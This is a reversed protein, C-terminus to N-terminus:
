FLGHSFVPKACLLGLETQCGMLVPSSVAGSCWQIHGFSSLLQKEPCSQNDLDNLGIAHTAKYLEPDGPSALARAACLVDWRGPEPDSCHLELTSKFSWDNNKQGTQNSM